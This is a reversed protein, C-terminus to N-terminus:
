TPKPVRQLATGVCSLSIMSRRSTPPHAAKTRSHRHTSRKVRPRSSEINCDVTIYFHPVTQTSATSVSRSPVACVTMRSLNTSGEEYLSRIQADSMAPRRHHWGFRFHASRFRLGQRIKSRRHRARNCSRAPWLRFATSTLMPNKRWGARPRRSFIRNTGGTATRQPQTVTQPSQRWRNRSRPRPNRRLQRRSQPSRRKSTAQPAAKAADAAAKRGREGAALVAIVSNVAM